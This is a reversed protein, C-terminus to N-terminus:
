WFGTKATFFNWCEIIKLIAQAQLKLAKKQKKSGAM